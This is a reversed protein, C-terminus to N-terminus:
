ISEKNIEGLIAPVIEFVGVLIQFLKLQSHIEKKRSVVQWRKSKRLFRSRKEDNKKKKALIRISAFARERWISWPRISFKCGPRGPNQAQGQCPANQQTMCDAHVACECISCVYGQLILGRSASFFVSALILLSWYPNIRDVYRWGGCWFFFGETINVHVCRPGIAASSTKRACLHGFCFALPPPPTTQVSRM